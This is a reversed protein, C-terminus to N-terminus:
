SLSVWAIIGTFALGGLVCAAVISVGALFVIGAGVAVCAVLMLVLKMLGFRKCCFPRWRRAHLASRQAAGPASTNPSLSEHAHIATLRGASARQQGITKEVARASNPM